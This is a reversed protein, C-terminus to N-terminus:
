DSFVPDWDKGIADYSSYLFQNLIRQEGKGGASFTGTVYLKDRARTASVFLLRLTEDIVQASMRSGKQYKTVSNFVVPWELGKASHATILTVGPYRLERKYTDKKGFRAFVGLYHVIEDYEKLELKEKFHTVTEDDQTISDVFELFKEKKEALTFKEDIGHAIELVQDIGAKIEEDPLEMVGGHIMCNYVILAAKTDTRDNLLRGFALIANIRSNDMLLEPACFMSPIKEQTLANAFEELERKTYTIIAIDEPATGDEIMKKIKTTIWQIEGVKYWNKSDAEGSHKYFGIAEVEAGSPRTAVLDKDIKNFRMENIKNGFDIIEPTSRYNELLSITHVPLDLYNDLHLIYEPSTGRFGFISQADDGVVVLSKWCSLKTFRNILDVQGASSDQFEDVVIHEMPYHEFLYNPDKDLIQFMMSEQDAFEILGKETMQKEYEDYRNILEDIVFDAADATDALSNVNEVTLDTNAAKLAKCASFVDAAIMLAGKGFSEQNDYQRFARGQWGTVPEETIMKDIMDLRDCNDLVQPDRNMGLAEHQDLVIENGFANFTMIKIADIDSSLGFFEAYKKIRARMEKVGATTFTILLIKSPDTGNQLLKIVHMIVCATKGAGAGAIVCLIGDNWDIVKQQDPSFHMDGMGSGSAVVPLSIPPETYKCYHYCSCMQCDSEAITEPELGKAKLQEKEQMAYDTLAGEDDMSIINEGSFFAPDLAGNKDSKKRMFRLEARIKVDKTGPFYVSAKMRGLKILQYLNLDRCLSNVKGKQTYDAKGIYYKVVTIMTEKEDLFLMDAIRADEDEMIVVNDFAEDSEAQMVRAILASDHLLNAEQVQPNVFADNTTYRSQVYEAIDRLSTVHYEYAIKLADTIISARAVNMPLANSTVPFSFKRHSQCLDTNTIKAM